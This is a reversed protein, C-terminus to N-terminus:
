RPLPFTRQRRRRPLKPLSLPRAPAPCRARKCCSPKAETAASQVSPAALNLPRRKAPSFYVFAAILCLALIAAGGLGCLVAVQHNIIAFPIHLFSQFFGFVGPM